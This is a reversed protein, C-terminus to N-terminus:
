SENKVVKKKFQDIFNITQLKALDSKERKNRSRREASETKRREKEKLYTKYEQNEYGNKQKKELRNLLYKAKGMVGFQPYYHYIAARDNKQCRASCYKQRPTKYEFPKGCKLCYKMAM